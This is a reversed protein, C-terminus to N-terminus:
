IKYKNKEISNHTSNEKWEKPSNMAWSCFYLKIYKIVKGFKNTRTIKTFELNKIHLIM